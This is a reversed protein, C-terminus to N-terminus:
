GIHLYDATSGADLSGTPYETFLSTAKVFKVPDRADVRGEAKMRIGGLQTVSMRSDSIKLNSFEEVLEEVNDSNLLMYGDYVDTIGDQIVDRNDFLWNGVRGAASRVGADLLEYGAGVAAAGLGAVRPAEQIAVAGFQLALRNMPDVELNDFGAVLGAMGDPM